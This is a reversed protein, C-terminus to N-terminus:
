CILQDTVHAVRQAATISFFLGTTPGFVSKLLQMLHFPFFIFLHFFLFSFLELM